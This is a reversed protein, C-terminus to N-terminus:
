LGQYILQDVLLDDMSAALCRAKEIEVEPFIVNPKLIGDILELVAQLLKKRASISNSNEALAAAIRSRYLKLLHM